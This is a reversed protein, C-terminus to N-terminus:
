NTAQMDAAAAGRVAGEFLNQLRADGCRARTKVHFKSLMSMTGAKAGHILLKEVVEPYDNCVAWDLARMKHVRGNVIRVSGEKNPNAKAELLEQVTEVCGKAAAEMLATRGDDDTDDVCAGADILKKVLSVPVHGALCM